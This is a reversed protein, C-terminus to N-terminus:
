KKHLGISEWVVKGKKVTERGYGKKYGKKEVSIFYSGEKLKYSYLGNSGTYVTKNNVTVKANSIRTGTGQKADYIVGKLEGKGGGGGGNIYDNVDNRIKSLLKYVNKGPCATSGFDCHGYINNTSINYHSCLWALLNILTEYSKSHLQETTYDGIVNVGVNNTNAGGTHAGIVNEPRGQYIKTAGSNPYTGILFHYGIDMWGNSDMHYNQINRVSSSGSYQSAKPRWTHHITIKKPTHYTYSGKPRRAGWGSRSIVYPKQTRQEYVHGRGRNIKKIKKLMSEFINNYAIVLKNLVPSEYDLNAEMFIRYQYITGATEFIVDQGSQKVSKWEGWQFQHNLLRFEISISSDQPVKSIWSVSMANFNIKGHRPSSAAFGTKSNPSLKVANDEITINKMNEFKENSFNITDIYDVDETANIATMFSISIFFTVFFYKIM